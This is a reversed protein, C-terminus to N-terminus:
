QCNRAHTALQDLQHAEALFAHEDYRPPYAQLDISANAVQMGAIRAQAAAIAALIAVLEASM